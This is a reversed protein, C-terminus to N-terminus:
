ILFGVVSFEVIKPIFGEFITIVLSFLAIFGKFITQDIQKGPVLNKMYDYALM